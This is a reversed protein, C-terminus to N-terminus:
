SVAKFSAAAAVPPKLEATETQHCCVLNVRFRSLLILEREVGWGDGATALVLMPFLFKKRVWLFRLAWCHLIKFSFRLFAKRKSVFTHGDWRYKEIKSCNAVGSRADMLWNLFREGINRSCTCYSHMLLLLIILLKFIKLRVALKPQM